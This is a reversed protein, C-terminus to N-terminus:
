HAAVKEVDFRAVSPAERSFEVGILYITAGDRRYKEAYRCDKIRQLANVEPVLEMVKFSFLYTQQQLLVALDIRSQSSADEVRVDLELAAFHSYFMRTCQSASDLHEEQPMSTCFAELLERLGNLDNARLLQELQSTQQAALAPSGQMRELLAGNLGSRVALNPYSLTMYLQGSLRLVHEVTLYGAQFLLAELPIHEVDFHSIQSPMTSFHSLDPTYVQQKLLRDLVLSSACAEFWYKCLRHERLAMLVDFPNYVTAGRWNYGSYWARIVDRDLGKLAPAFTADLEEETFGCLSSYRADLTIDAM